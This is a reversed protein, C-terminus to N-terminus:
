GNDENTFTSGSSSGFVFHQIVPSVEIGNRHQRLWEQIIDQVSSSENGQDHQSKALKLIDPLRHCFYAAAFIAVIELSEYGVIRDWLVLVQDGSLYGSFGAHIAPFMIELPEIELQICTWTDQPVKAHVLNEFM